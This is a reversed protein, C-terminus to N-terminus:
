PYCCKKCKLGSACPCPDNRSWRKKILRELAHHADEFQKLVQKVELLADHRQEDNSLKPRQANMYHQSQEFLADQALLYAHVASDDLLAIRQNNIRIGEYCRSQDPLFLIQSNRLKQRHPTIDIQEGVPSVWIAHFEAQLLIAPSEWICWGYQIDGGCQAQHQAVNDFCNGATGAQVTRNPLYIPQTDPVLTHCFTQIHTATQLRPTLAPIPQIM